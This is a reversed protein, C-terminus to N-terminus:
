GYTGLERAKQLIFMYDEFGVESPISHDSAFIYGGGDMAAPIKYTMEDVIAKRKHMIRSNINGCFSLKNGYQKKIDVIDMETAQLPNLVDIGIEIYMPIIDRINGCSHLLFDLQHNTLFERLRKYAPYFLEKIIVPSFLLGNNGGLDDLLFIADPHIGTDLGKKIVGMLFITYSEIIDEIMARNLYMDMMANEFGRLRWTIEWPGYARLVVYRGTKQKRSFIEGAERWAPWKEFPKFYTVEHIRGSQGFDVCLREKYRQWDDANKVPHENYHIGPILKNRTAVFGYKDSVTMTEENEEILKEEFRMSSDVFLDTCYYNFLDERASQTQPLCDRLWRRATDTFLEDCYFPIRDIKQRRIAGRVRERGNM